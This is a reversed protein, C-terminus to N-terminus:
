KSLGACLIRCSSPRLAGIFQDKKEVGWQGSSLGCSGTQGRTPIPWELHRIEKLRNCVNENFKINESEEPRCQLQIRQVCWVMMGSPPFCLSMPPQERRSLKMQEHTRQRADGSLVSARRGTVVEFMGDADRKLSAVYPGYDATAM